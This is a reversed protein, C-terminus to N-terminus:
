IVQYVSHGLECGPYSVPCVQVEGLSKKLYTLTYTTDATGKTRIPVAKTYFTVNRKISTATIM